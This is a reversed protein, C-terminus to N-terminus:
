NGRSLFSAAYSAAYGTLAKTAAGASEAIARVKGCGGDEKDAFDASSIATAGRLMELRRRQELAEEEASRAPAVAGGSAGANSAPMASAFSDSSIASAGAFNSRALNAYPDSGVEPQSLPPPDDLPDFSAPELRSGGV